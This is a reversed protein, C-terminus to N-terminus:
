ISVSTPASARGTGSPLARRAAPRRFASTRPVTEGHSAFPAPIGGDGRPHHCRNAALVCLRLQRKAAGEVAPSQAEAKMAESTKPRGSMTIRDRRSATKASPSM